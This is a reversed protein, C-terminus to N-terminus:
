AHHLICGKKQQTGHHTIHASNNKCEAAAAAASAGRRDDDLSQLQAGPEVSTAAAPSAALALALLAVELTTRRRAM